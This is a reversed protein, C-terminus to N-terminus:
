NAPRSSGSIPTHGLGPLTLSNIVMRAEKQASRGMSHSSVSLYEHQDNADGARYDPQKKWLCPCVNLSGAQSVRRLCPWVIVEGRIVASFLLLM